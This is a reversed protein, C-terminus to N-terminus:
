EDRQKELCNILRTLRVQYAVMGAYERQLEDLERALADRKIEINKVDRELEQDRVGVMSDLLQKM